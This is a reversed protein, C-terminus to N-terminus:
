KTQLCTCFIFDKLYCVKIRPMTVTPPQAKAVFSRAQGRDILNRTFKMHNVGKPGFIFDERLGDILMIVVRGIVPEITPTLAEEDTSRKGLHPAQKRWNKMELARIYQEINKPQFDDNSPEKPVDLFTSYGPISHRFPLFGQLFLIFGFLEGFLCFLLFGSKPMEMTTARKFCVETFETLYYM